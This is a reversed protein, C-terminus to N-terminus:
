LIKQLLTVDVWADFKRGVERWTGAPVFGARTHLALSAPNDGGLAAMLVHVDADRAAEIVANLLTRGIGAGQADPAVYVTVEKTQAYGAKERFDSYYAFGVVRDASAAVFLPRAADFSEFWATRDAVNFPRLDFTAVSKSIAHNYIDVIAPLDAPVANRITAHM